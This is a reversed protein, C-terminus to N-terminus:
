LNKYARFGSCLFLCHVVFFYFLDDHYGEPPAVGGYFYLELTELMIADLMFYFTRLELKTVEDHDVFLITKHQFCRLFTGPCLPARLNQFLKWVQQITICWKRNPICCGSKGIGLFKKSFAGIRSHLWTKSVTQLVTELQTVYPVVDVIRCSAEQVVQRSPASFWRSPHNRKTETNEEEGNVTNNKKRLHRNPKLFFHTSFCFTKKKNKINSVNM